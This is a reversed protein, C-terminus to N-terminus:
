FIHLWGGGNARAAVSLRRCSFAKQFKTRYSVAWVDGCCASLLMVSLAGGEERGDLKRGVKGRELERGGDEFSSIELSGAIVDAAFTNLGWRPEALVGM